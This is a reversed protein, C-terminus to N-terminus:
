ANLFRQFNMWAGPPLLTNQPSFLSPLLELSISAGIELDQDDKFTKIAQWYQLEHYLHSIFGRLTNKGRFSLFVDHKWYPPASEASTCSTSARQTSFTM